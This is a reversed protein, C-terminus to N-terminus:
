SIRKTQKAKTHRDSMVLKIKWIDEQLKKAKADSGVTWENIVEHAQDIANAMNVMRQRTNYSHWFTAGILCFLIFEVL